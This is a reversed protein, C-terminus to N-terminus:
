ESPVEVKVCAIRGFGVHKNAEAESKHGSGPYINIWRYVPERVTEYEYRAWNWVFRYGAPRSWLWEGDPHCGLVRCRTAHTPSDVMVKAMKEVDQM